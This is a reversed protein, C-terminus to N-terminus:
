VPRGARPRWEAALAAVFRRLHVRDVHWVYIESLAALIALHGALYAFIVALAAFVITDPETADGFAGGVWIATAAVALLVWPLALLAFGRGPRTAFGTIMKTTLMDGVVKFTRSLGYKAQGRLRPHHRVEREGIRAGTLTSLAPLFRHMESYLHLSRVVEARFAKLTCGNDHVPVGTLLAILWNAVRSPLKRTWLADQRQRRWGCIVDFGSDLESVLAPIDEPDNQLDGDMSVVVAGRARAFGAALALTQGSNRGLSLVRFRRDSCAERGALDLTRDRSGDDVLLVEWSRAWRDLAARLAACLPEVNEEEDFLPIVISVEPIDRM